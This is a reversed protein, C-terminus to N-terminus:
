IIEKITFSKLLIGLKRADPSDFLELPSVLNEFQFKILLESDSITNNFNIETNNKDKLYITKVIEKNAFIKVLFNKNLNKIYPNFNLQLQLEKNSKPVKFLLYSYEGESWVGPKGFNHSWGFGLFDGKFNLDYLKNLEVQNISIKNIENYDNENMLNKQGPLIIWFNDRYLFGYNKKFFIKKLQKLHGINDVLYARTPILEEDNINKTLNYRVQAAKARDMAANLIIDTKINKFNGLIHSFNTFLTGYNNFLYTTRIEDFNEDIKIWIKDKPEISLKKKNNFSNKLIGVSVDLIQVSLLFLILFIVVKRSFNKYVYFVAIFFMFYIVPWAFRGTASFISLLAFLYKPLDLNLIEHGLLSINTSISWMIFVLFCINLPRLIKFNISNHKISIKNKILLTLSLFTLLINGLGLYAFGELHTGSLDKLFLSWSKKNDIQPDFFSLLDIKFLGYGSSVANVPSSEFYGIVYMITISYIIKSVLSTISSKIKRKEIFIEFLSFFYIIIIMVTFYLHVMLSLFIVLYWNAEKKENPLFYVIYFSYLIIWHAGLSFHHTLRFLLFPSLLFILSVLISFLNDKTFKELIKFSFFIQLYFCIFIWFSFYQFDNYIIPKILKFLIALLPVNDTFIISNAVELGYNPNKGLPFHWVDKQYFQWSLQANTLDGAGYLWSTKNFWLNEAGTILVTLLLSIILFFFYIFKKNERM